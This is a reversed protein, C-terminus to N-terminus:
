RKLRAQVRPEAWKLLPLGIPWVVWLLAVPEPGLVALANPATTMALGAPFLGAIYIIGAIDYRTLVQSSAGRGEAASFLRIGLRAFLSAM